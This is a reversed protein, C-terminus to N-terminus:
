QRRGGRWGARVGAPLGTVYARSMRAREHDRRVLASLWRRTARLWHMTARLAIFADGRRLYKGYFGGHSRAYSSYQAERAGEDRWGLHTVAADPVYRIPIGARLARYAFEHDEATRVTPDEDFGGIAAVVQTAMAMNGGSLRDFGFARRRQVTADQGTVTIIVSDDGAEVRGTVISSPDAALATALREVWHPDPLCDDDTIAVFRTRAAEMGRNLGAARGRTDSPLWRAALGHDAAHKVMAEVEASQSQDVVIVEAPLTSGAQLAALARSLVPRGLTPIVVTIDASM